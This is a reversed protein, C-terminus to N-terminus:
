RYFHAALLQANFLLTDYRTYVRHGFCTGLGFM